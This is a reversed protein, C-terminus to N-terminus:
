NPDDLQACPEFRNKSKLLGQTRDEGTVFQRVKGGERLRACYKMLGEVLMGRLTKAAEESGIDEPADSGLYYREYLHSATIIVELPASSRNQTTNSTLALALATFSLLDHFAQSTAHHKFDSSSSSPDPLRHLKSLLTSFCDDLLTTSLFKFNLSQLVQLESALLASFSISPSCLSLLSTIPLFHREDCKSSLFIATTAYLQLDSSTYEVGHSFLFNIYRDLINMSLFILRYSSVNNGPFRNIVEIM